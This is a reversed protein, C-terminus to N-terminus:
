STLIYGKATIATKEAETLVASTAASLTVTCNTYEATARDFSYTLLTDVLSQRADPVTDNAVGWATAYKSNFGTFGSATGFNKILM